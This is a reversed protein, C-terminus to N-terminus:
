LSIAEQEKKKISKNFTDLSFNISKLTETARKAKEPFMTKGKIKNLSEDFRENSLDISNTKSTRM